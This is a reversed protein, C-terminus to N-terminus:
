HSYHGDWGNHRGRLAEGHDGPSLFNILHELERLVHESVAHHVKGHAHQGHDPIDCLLHRRGEAAAERKKVSM